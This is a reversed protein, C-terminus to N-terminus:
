NNVNNQDIKHKKSLPTLDEVIEESDDNLDSTHKKGFIRRIEAEDEEKEREELKKQYDVDDKFLINPDVVSNAANLERLDELTELVAM